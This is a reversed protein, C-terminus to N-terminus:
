TRRNMSERGCYLLFAVEQEVFCVEKGSATREEVEGFRAEEKHITQQKILCLGEGM